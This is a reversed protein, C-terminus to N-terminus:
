DIDNWATPTSDKGQFKRTNELGKVYLMAIM